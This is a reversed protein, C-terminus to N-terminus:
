VEMPMIRLSELGIARNSDLSCVCTLYVESLLIVIRSNSALAFLRQNAIYMAQLSHNLTSDM